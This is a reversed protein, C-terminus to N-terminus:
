RYRLLTRGGNPNTRIERRLQDIMWKICGYLVIFKHISGSVVVIDQYSSIAHHARQVIYLARISLM